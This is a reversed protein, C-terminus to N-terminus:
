LEMVRSNRCLRNWIFDTEMSVAVSIEIRMAERKGKGADRLRKKPASVPKGM